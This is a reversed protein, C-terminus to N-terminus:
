LEICQNFNPMIIDLFFIYVSVMIVPLPIAPVVRIKARRQLWFTLLQGVQVSIICGFMLYIKAIMSSSQTMVLLLLLDYVYFDAFGLATSNKWEDIGRVFYAGMDPTKSKSSKRNTTPSIYLWGRYHLCECRFLLGFWFLHIRIVACIV